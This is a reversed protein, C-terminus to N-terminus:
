RGASRRRRWAYLGMLPPLVFVLEFGLGCATPSESFPWRPGCEPDDFDVLGDGDNDLGDDCEPDEEVGMEFPCGPDEPFDILGDGDNDIGDSCALPTLTVAFVNSDPGENGASDFARVKYQYSGGLAVHIDSYSTKTTTGIMGFGGALADDDRYVQYGGVGSDADSSAGWTLSVSVGDESGSLGTPATPPDTDVGPGVLTFAASAQASVPGADGGADTATITFEYTGLAATSPAAVLFQFDKTEGPAVSEILAGWGMLWGAGIPTFELDYFSEWAVVAPDNTNTVSVTYYRAEWPGANFNQPSIAVVPPTPDYAARTVTVTADGGAIGDVTVTVGNEDYSEGEKLARVYLTDSSGSRSGQHVLVSDAVEAGNADPLSLVLQGDFGGTDRFSVFTDVVGIGARAGPDIVQVVQPVDASTSQAALTFAGSGPADVTQLRSGTFWGVLHKNVANVHANFASGMLGDSTDRSGTTTGDPGLEATHRFGITHGFEHFLCGLEVYSLHTCLGRSGSALGSGPVNSPRFPLIYLFRDYASLDYGRNQAEADAFATWQQWTHASVDLPFAMLLTDGALTVQGFSMEEFLRAFSSDREFAFHHITSADTWSTNTVIANEYHRLSRPVPQNGDVVMLLVRIEQTPTQGFASGSDAAHFLWLALATLTLLPLKTLADM